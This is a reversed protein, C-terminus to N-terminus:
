QAQKLTDQVLTPVAGPLTFAFTSGQGNGDEKWIRGGYSDVVRKCIALGLGSGSIDRNHLREFPEFITDKYEPAIGIGNDKILFTLGGPREECRISVRPPHGDRHYKVGNHILNFFLQELAIRNGKLKVSSQLHVDGQSAAIDEALLQKVNHIVEELPVWSTASETVDINGYHMLDDLMKRMRKGGDSASKLLSQAESERAIERSALQTYSTINRLSEKLDHGAAFAFQQLKQNALELQQNTTVLKVNNEALDENFEQLQDNARALSMRAFFLAIALVIIVILGTILSNIWKRSIANRQEALLNEYRANALEVDKLAQLGVLEKKRDEGDISDKWSIFREQHFSALEWDNLAFAAKAILDHADLIGRASNTEEALQLGLRGSELAEFLNDERLYLIGLNNVVAAKLIPNVVTTDLLFLAENYYDKARELQDKERYVNGLADFIFPQNPIAELDQALQLSTNLYTEAQELNDQLEALTGLNYFLIMRPYPQSEDFITLAEEYAQSAQSWQNLEQYLAGLNILTNARDRDSMLPSKLSVLSDKLNRADLYHSLADYYNNQIAYVRGLNHLIRAQLVRNGDRRVINLAKKYDNQAEDIQGMDFYFLGRSNYARSMGARNQQALYIKIGNDYFVQASDRVGRLAYVDAMSLYAAAKGSQLGIAESEELAIKSILLASDPNRRLYQFGLEALTTVRISDDTSKHYTEWMEDVSQLSKQGSVPM